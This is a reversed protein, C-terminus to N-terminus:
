TIVLHTITMSALHSRQAVICGCIAVGMLLNSFFILRSGRELLGASGSSAKTFKHIQKMARLVLTIFHSFLWFRMAALAALLLLRASPLVQLVGIIIIVIQVFTYLFLLSGMTLFAARASENSTLLRNYGLISLHLTFVMSMTFMVLIYYAFSADFKRIMEDEISRQRRLSTGMGGDKLEHEILAFETLHTCHCLATTSKSMTETLCGSSSWHGLHRDFWGCKLMTSPDDRPTAFAEISASM